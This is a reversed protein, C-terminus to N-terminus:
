DAIYKFSQPATFNENNSYPCIPTDYEYFSKIEIAYAKDRGDFYEDYFKETIGAYKKTIKWLRSPHEMLIQEIEFEGIIKGVPM